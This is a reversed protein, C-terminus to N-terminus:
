SSTPRSTTRISRPSRASPRSRRRWDLRSLDMDASERLIRVEWSSDGQSQQALRLADSLTRRAEDIQAMQRHLAALELFQTLAEDTRAQQALLEILRARANLDVPAFNLIRLYVEAAERVEGRVRHTEAVAKLKRMANEQRGSKFLIEAMRLHIPLYYPSTGVALMTEEMAANMLNASMLQDITELHKFVRDSAGIELMKIIPMATPGPAEAEAVKRADRVQRMWDPGTLLELTRDNLRELGELNGEELTAQLRDYYDNIQASQSGDVSMSDATRLVQVLHRAAEAQDGQERAMRGLALHTGFALEPHGVAKQLHKRAQDYNGQEKYLIGVDYHLAPNDFGAKMAAEFEKLAQKKQGHSQLDIAQSLQRQIAGRTAAGKDAKKGRGLAALPNKQRRRVRRLKISSCVPL